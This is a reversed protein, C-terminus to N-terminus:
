NAEKSKLLNPYKTELANRVAQAIAGYGAALPHGDDNQKYIKEHEVVKKQLADISDVYKIGSQELFSSLEEKVKTEVACLYSYTRPVEHGQKAIYDCYVREKTPIMLVLFGRNQDVLHKNMRLLAEKTLRLGERMTAKNVDMADLRHSPTFITKIDPEKPDVWVFQENESKNAAIRAGEHFQFLHGFNVRVMGYLVSQRALADRLGGFAKDDKRELNDTKNDQEIRPVNSLRMSKWHERSYASRYADAFDNGFYVGVVVVSPDLKPTENEVIYLYEIPGYGGIGMNYAPRGIQDELQKPWAKDLSASVGYTQSDGVAVLWAKDATSGNRFGRRDHGATNPEIRHGLVPDDVLTAVLYDGPHGIHRVIVEAALIAFITAFFSVVANIMLTKIDRRGAPWLGAISLT